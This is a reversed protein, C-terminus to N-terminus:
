IDTFQFKSSSGQFGLRLTQEGQIRTFSWDDQTFFNIITQFMPQATPFNHDSLISADQTLEQFWNSISTLTDTSFEQAASELSNSVLDKFFDTISLVESSFTQEALVTPSIYSWITRYGVEGSAQQQKVSLALWNETSLLPHSSEEKSLHLLYSIAEENTNSNETLSSLQDPKLTLEIEIDPKPLFEITTSPHRLDPSLNFLADTDIRPYCQPNIQLTLRCKPLQDDQQTLLLTIARATLPSQSADRLTLSRNLPLNKTPAIPQDIM